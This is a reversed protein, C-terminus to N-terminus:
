LEGLHLSFDNKCGCIFVTSGLIVFVIFYSGFEKELCKGTNMKETTAIPEPKETDMGTRSADATAGGTKYIM